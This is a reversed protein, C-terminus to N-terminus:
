KKSEAKIRAVRKKSWYRVGKPSGKEQISLSSVMFYKKWLIMLRLGFKKTILGSWSGSFPWQGGELPMWPYLQWSVFSELCSKQKIGAACALHRSLLYERLGAKLSLPYFCPGLNRGFDLIRTVNAAWTSSSSNSSLENYLNKEREELSIGLGQLLIDIWIPLM